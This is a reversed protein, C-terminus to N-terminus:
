ASSKEPPVDFAGAYLQDHLRVLQDSGANALLLVGEGGKVVDPVVRAQDLSVEFPENQEAVSRVASLAAGYDSSVPFVLTFHAPILSAQPDHAARVKEVWDGEPPLVPFAVVAIM